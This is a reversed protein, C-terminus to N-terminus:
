RDAACASSVRAPAAGAAALEGQHNSTADVLINGGAEDFRWAAVTADDVPLLTSPRPASSTVYRAVKSLRVDDIEGQFRHDELAAGRGIRLRGSYTRRGFFFGLDQTDRLAGDYYVRLTDGKLTGAVHAWKGPVVYADGAEGASYGQASFTEEGHVALEVRGERVMLVWGQGAAADHHSVIDMEVGAMAKIGPRIWAEITFDGDLDLATDDPVSAEDDVGDFALTPNTCVPTSPGPQAPPADPAPPPPAVSPAPAPPETPSTTTPTDAATGVGAFGCAVVGLALALV